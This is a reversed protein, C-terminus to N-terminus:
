AFFRREDESEEEEKREDASFDNKGLEDVETPDCSIFGSPVISIHADGHSLCAAPKSIKNRTMSARRYATRVTAPSANKRQRVYVGPDLPVSAGDPARYLLDVSRELHRRIRDVPRM